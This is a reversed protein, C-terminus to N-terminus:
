IAKSVNRAMRVTKVFAKKGARKVAKATNTRGVAEGAKKLGSRHAWAANGAAAATNGAVMLEGERQKKKNGQRRGQLALGAGALAYGGHAASYARHTNKFTGTRDGLAMGIGAGFAGAGGVLGGAMLATERKNAQALPSKM